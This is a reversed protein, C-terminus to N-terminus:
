QRHTRDYIKRRAREGDCFRGGAEVIAPPLERLKALRQTAVSARRPEGAANLLRELMEWSPALAPNLGVAREFSAIARSSDGLAALCHGREQFLLSYNPYARELADLTPLADKAQGLLRLNLAAWYPAARQSPGHQLLASAAALAEAHRRGRTLLEIHRLESGAADAEFEHHYLETM